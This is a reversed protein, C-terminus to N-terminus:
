ALRERDMAKRLLSNRGPFRNSVRGMGSGGKDEVVGSIRSTGGVDFSTGSGIVVERKQKMRERRERRREGDTGGAESTTGKREKGREEREVVRPIRGGKSTGLLGFDVKRWAVEDNFDWGFTESIEQLESAAGKGRSLAASKNGTLINEAFEWEIRDRYIPDNLVEDALKAWNEFDQTLLNKSVWKLYTSPLSGLM